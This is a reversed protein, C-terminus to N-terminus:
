KLIGRELSEMWLLLAQEEVVRLGLTGLTESSRDERGHSDVSRRLANEFSGGGTEPRPIVQSVAVERRLHGPSLREATALLSPARQARVSIVKRWAEHVGTHAENRGVSNQKARNRDPPKDLPFLSRLNLLIPM